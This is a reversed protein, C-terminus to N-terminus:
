ECDAYIELAAVAAMEDALHQHGAENPHILDNMWGEYSSDYHPCNSDNVYHGHGLYSPHQDAVFAWPRSDARAILADNHAHLLEIKVQSVFYPPATCDDFPNYQTNILLTVGDPFNADDGLFALIEEWAAAVEPGTTNNWGDLAAQDSLFIYPQLDNGGVYIVVFVHGPIGVEIDFIQNGSVDTTVSGGVSLNEYTIPGFNDAFYTNLLQPACNNSQTGGVGACAPISDGLVVMRTATPQCSTAGGTTTDEATDTDSPDGDTTGTQEGGSGTAPGATDDVSADTAEPSLGSSGESGSGEESDMGESNEAPGCAVALSCGLAGLRMAGRWNLQIQM